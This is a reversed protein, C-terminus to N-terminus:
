TQLTASAEPYSSNRGERNIALISCNEGAARWTMGIPMCKGLTVKDKAVQSISFSALVQTAGRSRLPPWPTELSPAATKM